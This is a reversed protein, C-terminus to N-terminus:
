LELIDLGFGTAIADLRGSRSPARTRRVMCYKLTLGSDIVIFDGDSSQNRIRAGRTKSAQWASERNAQPIGM